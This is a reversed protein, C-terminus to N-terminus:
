TGVNFAEWRKRLEEAFERCDYCYNAIQSNVPIKKFCIGSELLPDRKGEKIRRPLLDWDKEELINPILLV